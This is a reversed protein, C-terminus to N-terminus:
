IASGGHSGGEFHTEGTEARDAGRHHTQDACCRAASAAFHPRGISTTATLARERPLSRPM